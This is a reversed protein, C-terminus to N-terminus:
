SKFWVESSYEPWTAV